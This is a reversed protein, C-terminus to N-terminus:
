VKTCTAGAPPPPAAAAAVSARYQKIIESPQGITTALQLTTVLRSASEYGLYRYADFQDADFFQNVTSQHPFEPNSALYGATTFDMQKITTAKVYILTGKTDDSYTLQGVVFPSQAFRAGAPYYGEGPSMVLREPGSSPEPFFALSAGFDQEIRRTASVLSRLSIKPDAEGDVILIIALKRRVLEYLALNEFHGGDTLEIFSSDRRHALGLVGSVLGPNLFTPISRIRRSQRHYPNGVWLGLRINLLSMVASVLPNTTIGTGIYGASANAAAGSAAMASALTLPGNRKIYDATDQWGTVKSGVFLPSIIFNDGGRTRVKQNSDNILIVNANILPYPRPIFEPQKPDCLLSDRIDIVSIQDAVPSYSSKMDSVSTDAPMFAEMLRDRYFRHLGVYNINAVVGLAFALLIPGSIALRVLTKDGAVDGIQALFDEPNLLVVSLAYAAVLTAYLYLVSGITAMIQGVLSPVINRLFTYYGYLASFVGGLLGIVGGGITGYKSSGELQVIYHPLLPITAVALVALSPLFTQGMLRELTRRLWYSPNLSPPTMVEEIIILAAIGVFTGGAMMVLLLTTDWSAYTHLLFIQLAITGVIAVALAAVSRRGGVNDQPARSLITFLIAASTFFLCVGYFGYLAFAYIAPYRLDCELSPQCVERWQWDMTNGLPSWIGWTRAAMEAFYDLAGVLTFCGILLPVWILLSIVITRLLVGLMSWANLGNGPTLYSSHARLFALNRRARRLPTDAQPKTQAATTPAPPVAPADDGEEPAPRAPGYPFDTPGLGFTVANPDPPDQRPHRSWWWQLSSALYGGGSVSSIYDFRKLLDNESLAQLVGLALSASRIGGGSLGIGCWPSSQIGLGLRKARCLEIQEREFQIIESESKWAQEVPTAQPARGKAM